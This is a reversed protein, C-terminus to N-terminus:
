RIFISLNIVNFYFQRDKDYDSDRWNVQVVYHPDSVEAIVKEMKEEMALMAKLDKRYLKGIPKSYLYINVSGYTYADHDNMPNLEAYVMDKWEKNIDTPLNNVFFNKSASSKALLMSLFNELYSLQKYKNEM